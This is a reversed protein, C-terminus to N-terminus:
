PCGQQHIDAGTDQFCGGWQGDFPRDQHHAGKNEWKGGRCYDDPSWGQADRSGATASEARGPLEVYSCNVAFARDSPAIGSRNFYQKLIVYTLGWM